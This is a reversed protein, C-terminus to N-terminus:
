VVWDLLEPNDLLQAHSPNKKRAQVHALKQILGQLRELVEHLRVVDDLALLLAKVEERLLRAAKRLSRDALRWALAVLLWHQLVVGLLKAYFVALRELPRAAPRCTALGNHSKWLKFLLEVQWRARYLTVVTKWALEEAQCNTVFLSWGLLELYATSPERGHDRAKIRAQQRRRNAVEPPVRVGLLRCALLTSAGLLIAQDVLGSDQQRLHTVLDVVNQDTDLVTTGPQLRSLFKAKQRDLAAFRELSFYGLDYILLTGPEAQELAIASQADSAKAAEVIMQELRGTKLDWLVQIKVAARSTNEKGGCGAFRDALEDPLSIQTSDGIFVATFASLLESVPQAAVLQQLARQLAAELFAVLTEGAAFRKAIATPSIDLGLQTATVQFDWWSADPKHLLTIILVRLLSQGTFKRERQILGCTRALEDLASGLLNQLSTTVTPVIAM